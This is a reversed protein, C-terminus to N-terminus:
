EGILSTLKKAGLVLGIAFIIPIAAYIAFYITTHELYFGSLSANLSQGVSNSLLWISMMQAEFTKPALRNTVALSIPSILVEGFSVVVLSLIIWTVSFGKGSMAPHILLLYSAGVLAIGVAYRFFLNPLRNAFVKYVVAMGATGFIVVFPNISQIIPDAVKFGLFNHDSRTVFEAVITGGGEQVAWLAVGSLFVPIYALVKKKESSTVHKSMLIRVFYYITLVVALVTVINSLWQVSFTHTLSKFLLIAMVIAIGAIITGWTRPREAKPIPNPVSTDINHKLYKVYGWIYVGLGLGMVIAAASFGAHFGSHLQLYSVIIPSLFAGINIAVYFMSFAVNAENEDTVVRGVLTSVNPKLMGTGIILLALSAFLALRGFPLALVIHGAFIFVGGITVIRAAGFIRDSLWGGMISSMYILAGYLSAITVGDARNMGLGGKSAADIIYYLLIAKMGYYSFREAFETGLVTPFGKTLGFMGRKDDQKNVKGV